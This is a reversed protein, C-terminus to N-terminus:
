TFLDCILFGGGPLIWKTSQGHCANGPARGVVLFPFNHLILFITLLRMSHQLADFGALRQLQESVNDVLIPQSLLCLAPLSPAKGREKKRRKWRGRFYKGAM